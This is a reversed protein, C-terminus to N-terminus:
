RKGFNSAQRIDRFLGEDVESVQGFWFQADDKAIVGQERRHCKVDYGSAGLLIGEAENMNAVVHNTHAYTHTCMCSYARTSARSRFLFFPFYRRRDKEEEADNGRVKRRQGMEGQGREKYKKGLAYLKM